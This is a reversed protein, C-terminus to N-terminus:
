VFNYPVIEDLLTQKILQVCLAPLETLSGSSSISGQMTLRAKNITPVNM